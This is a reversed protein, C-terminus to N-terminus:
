ETLFSNAEGVVGAGGGGGGLGPPFTEKYHLGVKLLSDMHLFAFLFDCLLQWRTFIAALNEHM